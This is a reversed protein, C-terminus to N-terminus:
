YLREEIIFTIKELDIPDMMIQNYSSFADIFSMVKHRASANVLRDISPLSFSDKPCVKNLIKFDVCMKWKEKVKKVMVVNSLWDPYYM